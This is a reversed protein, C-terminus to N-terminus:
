RDATKTVANMFSSALASNLVEFKGKVRKEKELDFYFFLNPVYLKSLM